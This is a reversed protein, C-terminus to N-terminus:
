RKLCRMVDKKSLGERTRRELYARTRACYRLRVVVIMYLARNAQRDGGRDLRHRHTKGSSVELPAAACRHAFAAESRLRDINQGASIGLQAALHVGVGPLALTGPAAATVVTALQADLRAIEADLM